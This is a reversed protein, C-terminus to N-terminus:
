MWIRKSYEKNDVVVKFTCYKMEVKSLDFVKSFSEDQNIEENYILNNEASFINVEVPNSTDKVVLKYKGDELAIIAVPLVHTNMAPKKRYEVMHHLVKDNERIEFVYNGARLSKFNYPRIFVEDSVEKFKIVDHMVMKGKPDFIRIKVIKSTPQYILNVVQSNNDQQISYNANLKNEDKGDFAYNTKITAVLIAAIMVLKILNKMVVGKVKIGSQHCL